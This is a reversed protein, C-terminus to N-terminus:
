CYFLFFRCCLKVLFDFSLTKEKKERSSFSAFFIKKPSQKELGGGLSWGDKVKGGCVM